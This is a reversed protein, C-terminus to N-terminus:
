KISFIFKGMFVQFAGSALFQLSLRRKATSLGFESHRTKLRLQLGSFDMRYSKHPFTVHFICSQALVPM